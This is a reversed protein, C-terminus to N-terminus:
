LPVIESSWFSGIVIAALAILIGATLFSGFGPGRLPEGNRISKETLFWGVWAQTAALTALVVFVIAAFLRFAEDIPVDLAELAVGAAMLALSTRIWSLFTRENALSFRPDPEAGRSYLRKPFRRMSM